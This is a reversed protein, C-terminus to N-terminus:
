TWCQDFSSRSRHSIDVKCYTTREVLVSSREAVKAESSMGRTCVGFSQMGHVLATPGLADMSM